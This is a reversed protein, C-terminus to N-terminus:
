IKTNVNAITSLYSTAPSLHSVSIIDVTMIGRRDTSKTNSPIKSVENIKQRRRREENNM